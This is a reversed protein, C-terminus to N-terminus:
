RKYSLSMGKNRIHYSTYFPHESYRLRLSDCLCSNLTLRDLRILEDITNLGISSIVLIENGIDVTHLVQYSSRDYDVDEVENIGSACTFSVMPQTSSGGFCVEYVMPAFDAVLKTKARFDILSDRLPTDYFVDEVAEGFADSTETRSFMREFKLAVTGDNELSYEKHYPMQFPIEDPRLQKMEELLLSVDKSYRTLSSKNAVSKSLEPVSFLRIISNQYMGSKVHTMKDIDDIEPDFPITRDLFPKSDFSVIVSDNRHFIDIDTVRVVDDCSILELYRSLSDQLSLSYFLSKCDKQGVCSVSAFLTLIVVIRKCFTDKVFCDM